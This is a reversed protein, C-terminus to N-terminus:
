FYKIKKITESTCGYSGYYKKFDINLYDRIKEIELQFITQNKTAYILNGTQDICTIVLNKSISDKPISQSYLNDITLAYDILDLDLIGTRFKGQWEGTVNTEQENNVLIPPAFISENSLPGNGHRTQYTRTIYYIEPINLNNEVILEMANKSTTNSRTVHPFFGHKQDLMIGQAGEFVIDFKKLISSDSLYIVINTFLYEIADLFQQYQIDWILSNIKYIESYYEKLLDLKTKLVTLNFLDEAFICHNNEHREITAGFGVGVSGHNNLSECYQNSIIDFPTTIPCLPDVYLTPRIGIKRLVEYENKLAIPYLTCFKSWFTPINQLTGSGFSSFIHRHGGFYVTHGAQHGGNFRCVLSNRSQSVLYSTIHGKGEDGFGLGIVLSNNM